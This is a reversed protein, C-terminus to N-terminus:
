SQLIGLGYLDRQLFKEWEEVDEKTFKQGAMVLQGIKKGYSTLLEEGPEIDRLAVYVARCCAPNRTEKDKPFHMISVNQKGPDNAQNVMAAYGMPVLSNEFEKEPEGAFKYRNAYYTCMDAIGGCKVLVGIIELYDGKVIKEKAFCGYGSVTSEAVYFRHDTEEIIM